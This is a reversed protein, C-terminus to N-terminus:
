SQLTFRMAVNRAQSSRTPPIHPPCQSWTSALHLHGCLGRSTTQCVLAHLLDPTRLSLGTACAGTERCSRPTPNGVTTLLLTAQNGNPYLWDGTTATVSATKSTRATCRRGNTSPHHRSDKPHMRATGHFFRLAVRRRLAVSPTAAEGLQRAPQLFVLEVLTHGAYITCGGGRDRFTTTCTWSNFIRASSLLTTFSSTLWGCSSTTVRASRTMPPTPSWRRAVVLSRM